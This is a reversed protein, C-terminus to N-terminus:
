QAAFSSHAPFSRLPVYGAAALQHVHPQAETTRGLHNLARVLPDLREFPLAAGAEATLLRRASEWNKRAEDAKGAAEAMEGALV